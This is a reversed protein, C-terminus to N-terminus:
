WRGALHERNISAPARAVPKALALAANSQYDAHESPRVVPDAGALAPLVRDIADHVAVEVQGILSRVEHETM